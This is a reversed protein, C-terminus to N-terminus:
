EVAVRVVDAVIAVVNSAAVVAAGAASWPRCPGTSPRRTTVVDYSTIRISKAMHRHEPTNIEM